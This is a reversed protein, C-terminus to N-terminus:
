CEGDEDEDMLEPNDLVKLYKAWDGRADLDSDFLWQVFEQRGLSTLDGDIDIYGKDYLFREDEDMLLYKKKVKTEMPTEKKIYDSSLLDGKITITPHAPNSALDWDDIEVEVEGPIFEMEQGKYFIKGYSPEGSM